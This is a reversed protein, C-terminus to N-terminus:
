RRRILCGSYHMEARALTEEDPVTEGYRVREYIETFPSLDEKVNAAGAAKALIEQATDSIDPKIGYLPLMGLINEYMCRVKEAPDKIKSLKKVKSRKNKVKAAGSQMRPLLIETTDVFEAEVSSESSVNIKFLRKLAGIIKAVVGPAKSILMFLLKYSVYLIIFYMVTNSILNLFPTPRQDSVFSIESRMVEGGTTNDVTLKDILWGIFIFFLQIIRTALDLLYMVAKKFNFLLMMLLFVFSVAAMNFRRMNRPLATKDIHKKTFIHKDLDDQNKVILCAFIMFYSAAFYAPRLYKLRDVFYPVELCILMVVIGMYLSTSSMIRTMSLRTQKLATVYGVAATLLEFAIRGAGSDGYAVFVATFPIVILAWLVSSIVIRENDQENLLYATFRFFKTGAARDILPKGASSLFGDATHAFMIVAAYLAIAAIGGDDHFIAARLLSLGAYIFTNVALVSLIRLLLARISKKNAADMDVGGYKM